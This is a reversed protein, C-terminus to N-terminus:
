AVTTTNLAVVAATLDPYMAFVKDMRTLRFLTGVNARAGAIVIGGRRGAGKVASVVAGLGSSDVFAVDSLDLVLPGTHKAVIASLATRFAAAGSADVRASKVAVVAVGEVLSEVLSM